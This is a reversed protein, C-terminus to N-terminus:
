LNFSGGQMHSDFFKALQGGLICDFVPLQPPAFGPPRFSVFECMRNETCRPLGPLVLSLRQSCSPLLQDM